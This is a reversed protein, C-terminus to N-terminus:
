KQIDYQREQKERQIIERRQTDAYDYAKYLAYIGGAVLITLLTGELAIEALSQKRPEKAPHDQPTVPGIQNPNLGKLRNKEM